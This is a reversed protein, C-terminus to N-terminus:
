RSAAVPSVEPTPRPAAPTAPAGARDPPWLQDFRQSLIGAIGNPQRGLAIAAGGIILFVLGALNPQESQLVLLLTYLSGGILAGSVTTVGGVVVMLFLPLNQLSLFDITGVTSRQMGLFAGALGAIAASIMFVVLKTRRIDLGLTACAAPSDRMASLRRGYASRRLALVAVGVLAFASATLLLFAQNGAFSVGLLDLREVQRSGEGFIQPDEFIVVDAVQAFAFTVLALYLGQLRLAPLAVLAGIPIAILVAAVVGVPSGGGAVTAMAFAGLGVFTFQCLSIQGSFGTVVVWSLMILAFVLAQTYDFVNGPSLQSLVAVVAVFAVGRVVSQPLTPARPATRGVVRGIRLRVEPLALLAVFLFVGPVSLRLRSLIGGSTIYGGAYGEILGLAIAGAFTLPLSKLRGVMAAAYANVVLFTLVNANLSLKPALLVGAVAALTSGLMWSYRAIVSPRAGNLGALDPNDVVARMAVGTRSRYLLFRLAVAVIAAVILFTAEDWTVTVSFVTFSRNGWLLPLFRAEGVPFFQQSLGILMVTLGITVVLTTGVNADKFRRMVVKEVGAGLLPALVLLVLALALPTPVGREVRLEYYVFAAIMGIAGHAFNFVGTTTYTLVLGSAAVAYICGTVLGVITFALFDTM